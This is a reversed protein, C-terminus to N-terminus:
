RIKRYTYENGQNYGFILYMGLLDRRITVTIDGESPHQKNFLGFDFFVWPSNLYITYTKKDLSRMRWHGRISRQQGASPYFTQTYTGDSALILVDRNNQNKEDNYIFEYKGAIDTANFSLDVNKIISLLCYIVVFIAAIIILPQYRKINNM